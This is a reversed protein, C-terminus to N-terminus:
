ALCLQNVSPIRVQMVKLRFDSFTRIAIDSTMWTICTIVCSAHTVHRLHGEMHTDTHSQHAPHENRPYVKSVGDWVKSCSRQDTWRTRSAPLTAPLFVERAQSSDMATM